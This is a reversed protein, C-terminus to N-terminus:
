RSVQSCIYIHLLWSAKLPRFEFSPLLCCQRLVICCDDPKTAQTASQCPPLHSMPRDISRDIPNPYRAEATDISKAKDDAQADSSAATGQGSAKRPSKASLCEERHQSAALKTKAIPPDSAERKKPRGMASVGRPWPDIWSSCRAPM